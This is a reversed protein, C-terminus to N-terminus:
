QIRYFDIVFFLNNFKSMPADQVNQKNYFKLSYRQIRRKKTINENSKTVSFYYHLINSYKTKINHTKM